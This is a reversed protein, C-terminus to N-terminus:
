EMRYHPQTFDSSSSSSQSKHSGDYNRYGKSSSDQIRINSSVTQTKGDGDKVSDKGLDRDRDRDREPVRNDRDRNAYILSPPAQPMPPMGFQNMDRNYRYNYDDMYRNYGNNYYPDDMYGMDGMYGGRGGQYYGGYQGQGRVVEPLHAYYVVRRNAMPHYGMYNVDNTMYGGQYPNRMEPYEPYRREPYYGQGQNYNYQPYRNYYYPDYRDYASGGYSDFFRGRGMTRPPMYSDYPRRYMPDMTAPSGKLDRHEPQEDVALSRPQTVFNVRPVRRLGVESSSGTPSLNDSDRSRARRYYGSDMTQAEAAPLPEPKEEESTAPETAERKSRGLDNDVEVPEDDIAKFHSRLGSSELVKYASKTQPNPRLQVGVFRGEAVAILEEAEGDGGTLTASATIACLVLLLAPGPASYNLPHTCTAAFLIIQIIVGRGTDM